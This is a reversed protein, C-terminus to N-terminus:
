AAAQNVTGAFLPLDGLKALLENVGQRREFSMPKKRHKVVIKLDKRDIGQDHADDYLGKLDAKIQDMEEELKLARDVFKRVDGANALKHPENSDTHSM